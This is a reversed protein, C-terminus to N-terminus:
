AVYIRADSSPGIVVRGSPQSPNIPHYTAVVEHDSTVAIHSLRAVALTYPKDHFTVSKDAYCARDNRKKAIICCKSNKYLRYIDAYSDIKKM